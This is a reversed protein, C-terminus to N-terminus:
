NMITIIIIKYFNNSKYSKFKILGIRTDSFNLLFM